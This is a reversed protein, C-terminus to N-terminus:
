PKRAIVYFDHPMGELGEWRFDAEEAGNEIMREIVLGAAAICNIMDAMTHAFEVEDNTESVFDSIEFRSYEPARDGYARELTLGGADTQRFCRTFPHGEHLLLRGGSRLVRCWNRGASPLDEYYWLNGDVHVLDFAADGYSHLHQSDDVTFSVEAGFRIANRTAEAIAVGSFDCASVTAGMRALMLAQTADGGCSLQLVDRGALSGLLEIELDTFRTRGARIDELWGPNAARKRALYHHGEDWAERSMALHNPHEESM